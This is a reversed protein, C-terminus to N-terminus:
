EGGERAGDRMAALQGPTITERYVVARNLTVPGDQQYMALYHTADPLSDSVARPMDEQWVEWTEGREGRADRKSAELKETVEGLRIVLAEHEASLAGEIRARLADREATLTCVRDVHRALGSQLREIEDAAEDGLSLDDHEHRSLARLREILDGM